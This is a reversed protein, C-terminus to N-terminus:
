QDGPTLPIARTWSTWSRKVREKMKMIECSVLRRGRGKGQSMTGKKRVRTPTIITSLLNAHASCASICLLAVHQTTRGAADCFCFHVVDPQRFAGIAFENSITTNSTLSFM